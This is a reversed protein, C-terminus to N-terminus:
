DDRQASREETPCIQEHLWAPTIHERDVRANYIETMACPGMAYCDVSGSGGLHTPAELPQDPIIQGEGSVLAMRKGDLYVEVRYADQNTEWNTIRRKFDASLLVSRCHASPPMAVRIELGGLRSILEDATADHTISWIGPQEAITQDEAIGAALPSLRTAFTYGGFGPSRQFDDGELHATSESNKEQILRIRRAERIWERYDDALRTAVDPYQEIVNTSGTPDSLLDNLAHIAELQGAIPLPAQKVLRWRGDTSLVSFGDGRAWILQRSPLRNEEGTMLRHLSIGDFLNGIPQQIADLISPMLDMTSVIADITRNPYHGPWRVLLPTRVGGEYYQVKRGFFPLNSSANAGGNDSLVIVLTNEAQGSQDLAQLIQGIADDAMHLMALYRGEPTDGHLQLYHPAPEFPGHPTFFWHNIFWPTDGKLQHVLRSTHDALIETLHGSYQRAPGGDLSLWPDLYTPETYDSALMPYQYGGGLLWQNLFGFWRDFGVADPWANRTTHGIHWKGIHHTRYGMAKLVRPLAQTQPSLGRGDPTFGLKAPHRGTLLSARTPACTSDTSYHRTFHVGQHAFRDINPTTVLPNGHLGLDNYGLDDLVLLLLNPPREGDARADDLSVLMWLAVLLMVGMLGRLSRGACFVM